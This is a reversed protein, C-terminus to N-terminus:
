ELKLLQTDEVYLPKIERGKLMHPQTLHLQQAAEDTWEEYLHLEKEGGEEMHYDYCICGNEARVAQPIGAANLADMYAQKQGPKMTYIVHLKLM